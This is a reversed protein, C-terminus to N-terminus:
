EANYTMLYDCGSDLTLLETKISREEIQRRVEPLFDDM